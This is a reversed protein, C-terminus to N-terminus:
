SDLFGIPLLGSMLIQHHVDKWITIQYIICTTIPITASNVTIWTPCESASISLNLKVYLLSFVIIYYILNYQDIPEQKAKALLQQETNNSLLLAYQENASNVTEM